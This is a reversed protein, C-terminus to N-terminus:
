VDRNPEYRYLGHGLSKVVGHEALRKLRKQVYQRDYNTQESLRSPVSQYENELSELIAKDAPNLEPETMATM